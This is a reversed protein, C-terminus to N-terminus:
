TGITHTQADDSDYPSIRFRRLTCRFVEFFRSKQRSKAWFDINKQMFTAKKNNCCGACRTLHRDHSNSCWRLWVTFHRITKTYVQIGWFVWKKSPKQSLVWNNEELTAEKIITVKQASIQTAIRHTQADDSDYLSIGFRRLTCRFVLFVGSKQRNKDWFEIKLGRFTGKKNGCGRECRSPHSDQSNSCWRLWVTFKRITKTYVQICCFVWKKSPKQSM